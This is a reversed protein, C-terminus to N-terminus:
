KCITSNKMINVMKNVVDPDNTVDMVYGIDGFVKEFSSGSTRAKGGERDDEDDQYILESDDRYNEKSPEESDLAERYQRTKPPKTVAMIFIESKTSKKLSLIEAKLATNSTDDGIEDTWVCVFANKNVSQLAHKLGAFTLERTGIYSSWNEMKSRFQYPYQM